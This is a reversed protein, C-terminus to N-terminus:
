DLCDLLRSSLCCQFFSFFCIVSSYNCLVGCCLLLVVSPNLNATVEPFWRTWAGAWVPCDIVPQGCCHGPLKRNDRNWPDLSLFRKPFDTGTSLWESMFCKKKWQHGSVVEQIETQAWQSQDQWLVSFVVTERKKTGEKCTSRCVSFSERVREFREECWLHGLKKMIKTVRWQTSWRWYSLNGRAGLLGSSSVIRQSILGEDWTQTMDLCATPMTEGM